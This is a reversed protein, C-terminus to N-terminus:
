NWRFHITHKRRIDIQAGCQLSHLAMRVPVTKQREKGNAENVDGNDNDNDTQGATVFPYTLGVDIQNM